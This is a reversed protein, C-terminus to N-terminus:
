VRGKEAFIKIREDLSPTKSITDTSFMGETINKTASKEHGILAWTSDILHRFEPKELAKCIFPQFPSNIDEGSIQFLGHRECLAIVRKLQPLTNRAPMYTLANFGASALYEVLEDLYGDEFARNKKDGTVSDTVDGLYAYASIAGLEKGARIFDLVDPLEDTANIYFREVFQGKLCNLLYYAYLGGGTDLLRELNGGSVDLELKHRLFAILPQGPGTKEIIKNALAFLIHRETISGGHRSESIAAVDRDFDLRIDAFSMIDNIRATM